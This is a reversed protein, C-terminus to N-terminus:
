EKVFVPTGIRLMAALRQVDWNTMRFCGHSETKGIDEPKPTGHIGIGKLAKGSATSSLGIWMVGVPNNPGPPIMLKSTIKASEPVEPFLAPDFLYDPNPALVSVTLWGMPRKEKKAAISCPFSAMPQDGGDKAIILKAGLQIELHDARPLRRPSLAPAKIAVGEQLKNWNRITPNLVRLFDESVHFREALKEVASEHNLATLKSRAMWSEPVPALDAFYDAPVNWSIWANDTKIKRGAKQALDMAQETKRGQRGDIIGPSFGDNDLVIQQAALTLRHPTTM